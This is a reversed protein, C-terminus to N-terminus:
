SGGCGGCGGGGGGCGGGGSCSSGSSCSSTNGNRNQFHEARMFFAIGGFFMMLLLYFWNHLGHASGDIIRVVGLGEFCVLGILTTAPTDADNCRRWLVWGFTVAFWVGFLLLFDPGRMTHLFSFAGHDVQALIAPPPNM